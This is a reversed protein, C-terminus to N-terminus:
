GTPHLRKTTHRLSDAFHSAQWRRVDPSTLEHDLMSPARALRDLSDSPWILSQDLSLREAHASRWVKLQKLNDM